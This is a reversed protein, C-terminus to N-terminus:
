RALKRWSQVMLGSRGCPPAPRQRRSTLAAPEPTVPSRSAWQMSVASQSLPPMLSTLAMVSVKMLSRLCLRVPLTLLDADVVGAGEEAMEVVAGEAEELGGAVGAAVLGEVGELDVALVAGELPVEVVEM